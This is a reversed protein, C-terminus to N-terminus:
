RWVYGGAILALGILIAFIAVIQAVQSVGHAIATQATQAAKGTLTAQGQIDKLKAELATPNEATRRGRLLTWASDLAADNLDYRAAWRRLAIGVLVAVAGTAMLWM